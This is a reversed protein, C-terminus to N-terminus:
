QARARRSPRTPKSTLIDDISSPGVGMAGAPRDGYATLGSRPSSAWPSASETSAGALAADIEDWINSRPAAPSPAASERPLARDIEDWVSPAATVQSAVPPVPAQGGIAEDIEDWISRAM